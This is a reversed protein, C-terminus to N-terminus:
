MGKGTETKWCLKRFETSVSKHFPWRSKNDNFGSPSFCTKLHSSGRCKKHFNEFYYCYASFFFFLFFFYCLLVTKSANRQKAILIWRLRMKKSLSSDIRSGYLGQFLNCSNGGPVVKKKGREVEKMIHRLM